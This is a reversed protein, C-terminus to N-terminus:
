DPRVLVVHGIETRRAVAVEAAPVGGRRQVVSGAAIVTIGERLLRRVNASKVAHTLHRAVEIPETHTPGSEVRAAVLIRVVALFGSEVGNELIRLDGAGIGTEPNALGHRQDAAAADSERATVPHKRAQARRLVLALRVEGIRAHC